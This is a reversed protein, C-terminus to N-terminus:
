STEQRLDKPGNVRLTVKINFPSDMLHQVFLTSHSALYLHFAVHILTVNLSAWTVAAWIKEAVTTTGGQGVTLLLTGVGVLIPLRYPRPPDSSTLALARAM